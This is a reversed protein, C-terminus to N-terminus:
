CLINIWDDLGIWNGMPRRVGGVIVHNHTNNKPVNPFKNKIESVTELNQGKEAGRDCTYSKPAHFM